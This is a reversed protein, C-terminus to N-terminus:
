ALEGREWLRAIEARDKIMEVPPSYPIEHYECCQKVLKENIRHRMMRYYDRIEDPTRFRSM